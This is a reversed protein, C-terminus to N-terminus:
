LAPLLMIYDQVDYLMIAEPEVQCDGCNARCIGLNGCSMLGCNGGFDVFM